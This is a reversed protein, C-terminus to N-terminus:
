LIVGKSGKGVGVGIGVEVGVGSGVAVGVGITVGVGVAVAVGSGVGVDVGYNPHVLSGFLSLHICLISLCLSIVLYFTCSLSFHM